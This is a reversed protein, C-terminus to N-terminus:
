DHTMLQLISPSRSYKANGKCKGGIYIDYSNIAIYLLSLPKVVTTFNKLIILKKQENHLYEYIYIYLGIM